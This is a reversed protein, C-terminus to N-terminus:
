RRDASQASRGGYGARWSAWGFQRAIAPASNWDNDTPRMLDGWAGFVPDAASSRRAVPRWRWRGSTQPRMLAPSLSMFFVADENPDPRTTAVTLLYDGVQHRAEETQEHFQTDVHEQFAREKAAFTKRFEAVAPTAATQGMLPLEAPEESSAFVGYLGYYDAQSIADYKHDHCRACAVTMGLLGRSVTDIRDDYEDNLNYDFLRGLTLFGMAALRWSEDKGATQDAALQDIIFRDYPVDANLAKTVYDRYTYAYPRIADDGFVLVLDKTDAYRAVDLWHRGWREGYRLKLWCGTSSRRTRGRRTTTRSRRSREIPRRCVLRDERLPLLRSAVSASTRRDLWAPSDLGRSELKALM